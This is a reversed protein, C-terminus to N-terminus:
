FQKKEQYERILRKNAGTFIYQISLGLSAGNIKYTGSTNPHNPTTIIYNGKFFYTTSVDAQLGVSLINQNDLVFLKSVGALFTIWPKCNNKESFFASFIPIVQNNSDIIGGGGILLDPVFGSYRLNLGTKISTLGKKKTNIKKEVLLPVRVAGWIDKDWIISHGDLNYQSLDESPINAFFNWKGIIAHFGSSISLNRNVNYIYDIGGDYASQLRSQLRYNGTERTIRAKPLVSATIEFSLISKKLPMENNDHSFSNVFINEKQVEFQCFSFEPILFVLLTLISKQHKLSYKM